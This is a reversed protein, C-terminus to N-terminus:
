CTGEYHQVIRRATSADCYHFARLSQQAQPGASEALASFAPVPDIGARTATHYLFALSVLLDHADVRGEIYAAAALGSRLLAEDATTRICRSIRRMYILANDFRAYSLQLPVVSCQDSAFFQRLQEQQKPNGEMYLESLATLKTDLPAPYLNMFYSQDEIDGPMKAWALLHAQFAATEKQTEKLVVRRAHALDVQEANNASRM